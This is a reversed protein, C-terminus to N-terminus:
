LPFLGAAIRLAEDDEGDKRVRVEIQNAVQIVGEIRRVADAAAHKAIETEVKGTLTVVGDHAAVDIGVNLRVDWALERTVEHKLAADTKM